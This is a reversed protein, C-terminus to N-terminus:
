FNIETDLPIFCWWPLVKKTTNVTMDRVDLLTGPFLLCNIFQFFYIFFFSHCISHLHKHRAFVFYYLLVQYKDFTGQVSACLSNSTREPYHHFSNDLLVQAKKVQFSWHATDDATNSQSIRPSSPSYSDYEGEPSDRM